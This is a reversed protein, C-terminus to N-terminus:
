PPSDLVHIQDIKDRLGLAYQHGAEVATTRVKPHISKVLLLDRGSGAGLDVVSTVPPLQRTFRAIVHEGYAERYDVFRALPHQLGDQGPLKKIVGSM